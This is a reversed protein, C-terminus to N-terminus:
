LRIQLHKARKGTTKGLKRREPQPRQPEYGEFGSLLARLDGLGDDPPTYDGYQQLLVDEYGIYQAKPWFARMRDAAPKAFSVGGNVGSSCNFFKIKGTFSKSGHFCEHFRLVLDEPQLKIAKYQKKATKGRKEEQEEHDIDVIFDLGAKHHGMIYVQDDSKLSIKKAAPKQGVMLQGEGGMWCVFTYGEKGKTKREESWEDSRTSIIESVDKGRQRDPIWASFAYRAM